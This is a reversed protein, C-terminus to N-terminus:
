SSGEDDRRGVVMGLVVFAGLALLVLALSAAVVGLLLLLVALVALLTLRWRGSPLRVATWGHEREGELLVALGPDERRLQEATEALVRHDRDSLM